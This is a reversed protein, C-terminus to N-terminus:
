WRPRRAVDQDVLRKVELLREVSGEFLGAQLPPWSDQSDEIEKAMLDPLWQHGYFERRWEFCGGAFSVRGHKSHHLDAHVLSALYEFRDFSEVYDPETPALEAFVPRLAHQLYQSLPTHYRSGGPNPHVIHATNEAVISHLYVSQVITEPEGSRISRMRSLLLSALLDYRAAVVSGIGATYFSLLAPYRLLGRWVDYGARPVEVSALRRVVGLWVEDHEPRGNFCGHAVLSFMQQCLSNLRQVRAVIEEDTPRADVPFEETNLHSVLEKAVEHVLDRLRIRHRDEVLYRKLTEVAAQTDMPHREGSTHIGTVREELETFFSDSDRIAVLQAARNEAVPKTVANLDGRTCWYTTFRRSKCRGLADRLAQDHEGSWGCVILGYEDFVRDLLANMAPDYEALEDDSNKIRTDLYDGHVKIVTCDNHVPPLAGEVQDPTAIVVPRVGADELALELLKDFNTTVIVRIWGAAVLDAIARHAKTPTKIGEESEEATPEFYKKLLSQRETGTPALAELLKSYEPAENNTRRYWEEPDMEPDAGAAVALKRVLDRVVGRGTLIGASRSVGSGLLLAYVGPSAAVNM